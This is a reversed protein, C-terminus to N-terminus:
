NNNDYHVIALHQEIIYNRNLIQIIKNKRNINYKNLNM